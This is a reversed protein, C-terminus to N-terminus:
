SFISISNTKTLSVELATLANAILRDVSNVNAAGAIGGSITVTFSKGDMDILTNAIENRIRDARMKADKPDTNVFGIAFIDNGAKGFVDYVKIKNRVIDIVHYVMKEVRERFQEPDFSTYEDLKFLFLAMPEGYATCRFLEEEIRRNFAPTNLIGTSPDILSSNNIMDMFYLKELASGAQDAITELLLIDLSSVAAPNRDAIYLAGFTGTMSMVSVSCFIGGSIDDEGSHIRIIDQKVPVFTNTASTMITNGLVTSNLSVRTGIIKNKGGDKSNASKIMWAGSNDDFACFGISECDIIQSVSEIISNSIDDPTAGPNNSFQHFINVADLTRSAQILDFKETYSHVLGAILKTFHGLFGVTLSDYADVIDSDACLVGTIMNNYFVPVGIFSATGVSKKYYPILDLEASPNMESLIEPKLNVAIQSVVDNTIAFRRNATINDPVDTVVSELVFERKSSNVLFFVATRTNTVSRIIMLVRQLFYDFEKRPEHNLVPAEEILVSFPINLDKKRYPREKSKTDIRVPENEAINKEKRVQQQQAKADFDLRITGSDDPTAENEDAVNFQLGPNAPGSKPIPQKKSKGVIRMGSNEDDFRFNPDYSETKKVGRNSFNTLGDAVTEPQPQGKPSINEVPQGSKIRFGEDDSIFDDAKTQDETSEIDSNIENSIIDSGIIDSGFESEFDEIVTRKAHDDQKVTMKFSPPPSSPKFRSEVMESLRQSILMVLAVSGLIAVCIGILRIAVETLFIAILLGVIIVVVAVADTPTIVKKLKISRKPM